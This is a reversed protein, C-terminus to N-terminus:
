PVPCWVVPSAPMAPMTPFLHCACRAKEPMPLRPPPPRPLRAIFAPLYVWPPLLGSCTQGLAPVASMPRGESQTSFLGPPWTGGQEQRGNGAPLLDRWCRSRQKMLSCETSNRTSRVQAPMGAPARTDGNPLGLHRRCPHASCVGNGSCVANVEAAFSPTQQHDSAMVRPVGRRARRAGWRHWAWTPSCGGGRRTRFLHHHPPAATLSRTLRWSAFSLSLVYVPSPIAENYYWESVRARM